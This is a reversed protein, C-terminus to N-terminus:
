DRYFRVKSRTGFTALRQHLPTSCRLSFVRRDGVGTDIEFPQDSFVRADDGRPVFLEADVPPAESAPATDPDFDPAARDVGAVLADNDSPVARLFRPAAKERSCVYPEGDCTVADTSSGWLGNARKRCRIAADGLRHEDDAPAPALDNALRHVLEAYVRVSPALVRVPVREDIAHFTRLEAEALPAPMFGYTPVNVRRFFYTDSSGPFMYASAVAAPSSKALVHEITRYAPSDMPSSNFDQKYCDFCVERQTRLEAGDRELFAALSRELADSKTDFTTRCDLKARAEGDAPFRFTTWSCTNRFPADSPLSSDALGLLMGSIAPKSSLLSTLSAATEGFSRALTTLLRRNAPSVGLAFFQREAEADGDLDLEDLQGTAVLVGAAVHLATAGVSASGHGGAGMEIEVAIRERDGASTATIKLGPEHEYARELSAVAARVTAESGSACDLEVRSIRPQVNAKQTEDSILGVVRCRAKLDARVPASPMKKPAEVIGLRAIARVLRAPDEHAFQTWVVGKEEAGVVFVDRGPLLADAIGTGGENLVIGPRLDLPDVHEDSGDETIRGVALHEAGRGGVEEDPVAAFHVDHAPVVGARHLISLSVLQMIAIVKMDLAGRGWIHEGDDDGSFPARTWKGSAPVVDSHNLLVVSGDRQKGPLTAVLSVRKPDPTGALPAKRTSLGLRRYVVEFFRAAEAEGVDEPGPPNVTRLQVYRSLCTRAAAAIVGDDAPDVRGEPHWASAPIKELAAACALAADSANVEAASTESPPGASSCAVVALATVCAFNRISMRDLTATYTGCM